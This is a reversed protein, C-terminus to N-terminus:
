YNIAIYLHKLSIDSCTISISLYTILIQLQAIPMRLNKSLKFNFFDHNAVYM